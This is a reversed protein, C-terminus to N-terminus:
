SIRVDGSILAGISSVGFSAALVIGATGIVDRLEIASAPPNFFLLCGVALSLFGITVLPDFLAAVGRRHWHHYQHHAVLFAVIAAVGLLAATLGVTGFLPVLTMPVEALAPVRLLVVGLAVRIFADAFSMGSLIPFRHAIRRWVLLAVAILGLVGDALAYWAAARVIDGWQPQGRLVQAAVCASAIGRALFPLALARTHLVETDNHM